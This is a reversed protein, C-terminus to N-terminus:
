GPRHRPCRPHLVQNKIQLKKIIPLQLIKQKQTVYTTWEPKLFGPM